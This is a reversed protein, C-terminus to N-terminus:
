ITLLTPRPSLNAQTMPLCITKGNVTITAVSNPIDLQMNYKAMFPRGLIGPSDGCNMVHLPIELATFSEENQIGIVAPFQGITKVPRNDVTFIEPHYSPYLQPPQPLRDYTSINLVDIASGTDILFDVTAGCLRTTVLFPSPSNDDELLGAPLLIGEKEDDLTHPQAQLSEQQHAQQITAKFRRCDQMTHGPIGCFGCQKQGSVAQLQNVTAEVRQRHLTDLFGDCNAMNHGSTDCFACKATDKHTANITTTKSTKDMKELLTTMSQQLSKIDEDEDHNKGLEEAEKARILTDRLTKPKEQKIYKKIYKPLGRKFLVTKQAEPLKMHETKKMVSNFYTQVREGKKLTLETLQEFQEDAPLKTPAYFTILDKKMTQYDQRVDEDLSKYVSYAPGDLCLVFNAAKYDDHHGHKDCWLEFRDFFAEINQDKNGSFIEKFKAARELEMKPRATNPNEEPTSILAPENTTPQTERRRQLERSLEELERRFNPNVFSNQETIERQEELSIPEPEEVDQHVEPDHQDPDPHHLSTTRRPIRPTTQPPGNDEPVLSQYSHNSIDHLPDGASETDFEPESDQFEGFERDLRDWAEDADYTNLLPHDVGERDQQTETEDIEIVRTPTGARVQSPREVLPPTPWQTSTQAGTNTTGLQQNDPQLQSPPPTFGRTSRLASLTTPYSDPSLPRNPILTHTQQDNEANPDPNLTRGCDPCAYKNARAFTTQRTEPKKCTCYEESM